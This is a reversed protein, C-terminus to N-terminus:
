KSKWLIRGQFEPKSNESKASNEIKRVSESQQVSEM